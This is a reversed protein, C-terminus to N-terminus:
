KCVLKFECYWEYKGNKLKYGCKWQKECKAGSISNIENQNLLIKKNGDDEAFAPSGPNKNKIM